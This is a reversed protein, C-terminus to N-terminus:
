VRAPFYFLVLMGESKLFRVTATTQKDHTTLLASLLTREVGPM